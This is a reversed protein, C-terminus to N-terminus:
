GGVAHIGPQVGLNDEVVGQLTELAAKAPVSLMGRRRIALGVRRRPRETIELAVWDGHTAWSPIATAPVIAPGYGQFAMTATLRIGDLEARAKLHTGVLAAAADIDNRLTSGAPGLLFEFRELETFSVPGEFTSLPHSSPAVVVLDEEFLPRVSVDPDHLPLNVLALHLQGSILQPLLGSTTGETVVLHIGPHAEAMRDLLEPTVWRGTTGITGFRVNGAIRSTMSAVDAELAEIESQIRRARAVVVEGERTPRGMSRDILTVNLEKELRAVHSSVNSQVTHLARAAASFSHNDAVAVLAQLQRLDMAECYSVPERVSM